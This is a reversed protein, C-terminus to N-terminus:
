NDGEEGDGDFFSIQRLRRHGDEKRLHRYRQMIKSESHGLWALLEADTAGSRYAESCFYHRLGHVTGRECGVEGIPTPYRKKLNAIVNEQLFELVVRSRLRGGRQARFVLGDSNRPITEIARRFDPHMPISRGKRNKLRREAGTKRKRSRGREDPLFISESEM